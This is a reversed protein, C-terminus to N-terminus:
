RSHTKFDYIPIEVPENQMLKRLTEAILEFDFADAILALPAKSDTPATASGLEPCVLWM